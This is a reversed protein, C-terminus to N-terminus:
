SDNQLEGYSYCSDSSSSGKQRVHSDESSDTESREKQTGISVELSSSINLPEESRKKKRCIAAVLLEVM